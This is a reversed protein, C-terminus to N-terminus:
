GGAHLQDSVAVRREEVDRVQEGFFRTANRVPSFDAGIVDNAGDGEEGFMEAGVGLVLGRRLTAGWAGSSVFCCDM